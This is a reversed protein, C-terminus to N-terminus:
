HLTAAALERLFGDCRELQEVAIWEDPKHAVDIDGPGCVVAPVGRAFFCGGKPASRSRPRPRPAPSSAACSPSPRTPLRPWAPIPWSRRSRSRRRPRPRACPPCCRRSRRRRSRACSACAPGRGAPHPVRVRLQLPAPHHQAPLRGRDQRRGLHPAAPRLGRRVPGEAAFQEGMAAVRGIIRAAAVVANAGLKPYASHAERGTVTCRYGAKGKHGDVLQM